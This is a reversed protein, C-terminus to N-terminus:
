PLAYKRCLRTSNYRQVTPDRKTTLDMINHLDLQIILDVFSKLGFRIKRRENPHLPTKFDFEDGCFKKLGVFTNSYVLSKANPIPGISKSYSFKCPASFLSRNIPSSLMYDDSNGQAIYTILKENHVGKNAVGGVREDEQPSPKRFFIGLEEFLQSVCPQPTQVPMVTPRDPENRGFLDPYRQDYFISTLVNFVVSFRYLVM